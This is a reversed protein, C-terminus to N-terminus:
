ANNRFEQVSFLDKFDPWRMKRKLYDRFSFSSKDQPKNYLSSIFIQLRVQIMFYYRNNEGLVPIEIIKIKQGVVNKFELSKYLM